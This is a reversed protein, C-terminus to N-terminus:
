TNLWELSWGGNACLLDAVLQSPPQRAVQRIDGIDTVHQIDPMEPM